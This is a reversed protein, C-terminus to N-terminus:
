SFAWNCGRDATRAIGESLSAIITGNAMLGITPDQVGSYGVARECIWDWNQGSDHSVLMGFTSRAVLFESDDPAIVLQDAKPYRGNARAGQALGFLALGIVSGAAIRARCTGLM